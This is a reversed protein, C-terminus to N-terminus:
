RPDIPTFVGARQQIIEGAQLCAEEQYRGAIIQVGSPIGGSVSVPVSLGPLGLVALALLPSQAQLMEGMAADGSQDADIAFPRRWSVPMLILPYQELFILWERILATRRAMAANFQEWNVPETHALMSAVTRQIAADGFQAINPIMGARAENMLLTRWLGAAESFHPPQVEEIIYGSDQLWGAAQKLANRVEPDPKLEANDMVLAVRLPHKQAEPKLAAPAWNPDRPDFQSMAALGLRVDGVTRAIPGQVSMAQVMAPREGSATGNFVPVRGSTPRLGVVGCAYAPYRISGGADSGHALPGIGAAVAAAAGGSSGGPTIASNWPNLTRGHLANDTFWRWSFAPTNTRGIFIAGQKRWNSVAPSDQLAIRDKYATVGDTTAEGQQDTNIKVTVPVGHLMGVDRGQALAQDADAAAQLAAADSQAVVANISPNVAAMRDLCSLTAEVSSVEKKRIAQALEMASWQWLERTM